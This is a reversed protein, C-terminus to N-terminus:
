RSPRRRSSTGAVGAGVGVAGLMAGAGSAGGACASATGGDASDVVGAVGEGDGAVGGGTEVGAAAGEAQVIEVGSGGTGSAGTRAVGPTCDGRSQSMTGTAAVPAARPNLA